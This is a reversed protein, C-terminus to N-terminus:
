VCPFSCITKEPSPRLTGFNDRAGERIDIKPWFWSNPGQVLGAPDWTLTHIHVYTAVSVIEPSEERKTEEGLFSM